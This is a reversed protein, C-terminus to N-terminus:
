EAAKQSEKPMAFSGGNPVLVRLKGSERLWAMRRQHMSFLSVQEDTVMRIIEVRETRAAEHGLAIRQAQSTSPIGLLEALQRYTLGRAIRWQELDM